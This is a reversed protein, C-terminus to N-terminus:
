EKMGKYVQREKFGGEYGHVYFSNIRWIGNQMFFARARALQEMAHIKSPFNDRGKVEYNALGLGQRTFLVLADIEGRPYEVHRLVQEKPYRRHLDEVLQDLVDEHRKMGADMKSGRWM